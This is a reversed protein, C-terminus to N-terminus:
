ALLDGLLPATTSMARGQRPPEGVVPADAELFADEAGILSLLRTLQPGVGEVFLDVGARLAAVRATFLANLGACDCFSVGTLDLRIVAVGEVLCTAVAERVYSSADLDLEGALTVRTAGAHVVTHSTFPHATVTDAGRRASTGRTGRSAIGHVRAWLAGM